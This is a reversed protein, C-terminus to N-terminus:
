FKSPKRFRRSGISKEQQHKQLHKWHKKGAPTKPFAEIANVIDIYGNNIAIMLATGGNPDTANVNIGKVNLLAKVIHIYGNNDYHVKYIM